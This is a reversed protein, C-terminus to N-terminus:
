DADAKYEALTMGATLREIAVIADLIHRLRDQIRGVTV